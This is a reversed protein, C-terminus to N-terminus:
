CFGVYVLSQLFTKTISKIKQRCYLILQDQDDEEFNILLLHRICGYM